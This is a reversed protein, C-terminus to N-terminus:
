TNSQSQMTLDRTKGRIELSASALQASEGGAQESFQILAQLVRDIQLDALDEERMSGAARVGNERAWSGQMQYVHIVMVAGKVSCLPDTVDGVRPRQTKCNGQSPPAQEPDAGM